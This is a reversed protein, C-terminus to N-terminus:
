FKITLFQFGSGTGLLGGLGYEIKKGSSDTLETVGLAKSGKHKKEAKNMAKDETDAFVTEDIEHGDSGELTILWLHKSRVSGGKRFRKVMGGCKYVAIGLLKSLEESTPTKEAVLKIYFNYNASYLELDGKEWIAIQSKSAPSNESDVLLSTVIRGDDMVSFDSKEMDKYIVEDNIYKILEDASDFSKGVKGNFSNVHDGEGENYSDEYVDADWSELNLKYEPIKGGEEYQGNSIHIELKGKIYDGLTNYDQRIIDAKSEKHVRESYSLEDADMHDSVFHDRQEEDWGDWVEEASKGKYTNKTPKGKIKGGKKYEGSDRIEKDGDEHEEAESNWTIIGYKKGKYEYFKEEGANSATQSEDIIYSDIYEGNEEVESISPLKGSKKKSM